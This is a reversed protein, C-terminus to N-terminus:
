RKSAVLYEFFFFYISIPNHLSKTCQPPIIMRSNDTNISRKIHHNCKDSYLISSIFLLIKQSFISTSIQDWLFICWLDMTIFSSIRWIGFAMCFYLFIINLSRFFTHTKYKCNRLFYWGDLTHTQKTAKVYIQCWM